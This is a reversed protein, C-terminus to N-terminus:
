YLRSSTVFLLFRGDVKLDERLSSYDIEIAEEKEYIDVTAQTSEAETGLQFVRLGRRTVRVRGAGLGGQEPRGRGRRRLSLAGM